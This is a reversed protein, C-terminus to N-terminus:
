HKETSSFNYSTLNMCASDFEESQFILERAKLIQYERLSEELQQIAQHHAEINEKDRPKNLYLDEIKRLLNMVEQDKLMIM